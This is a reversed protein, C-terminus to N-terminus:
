EKEEEVEYLKEQRAALEEKCCSSKTIGRIAQIIRRKRESHTVDKDIMVGRLGTADEIVKLPEMVKKEEGVIEETKSEKAVEKPQIGDLEQEWAPTHLPARPIPSTLSSPPVPVPSQYYPQILSPPM